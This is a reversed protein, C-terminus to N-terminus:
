GNNLGCYDIHIGDVIAAGSGLFYVGAPGVITSSTGQYPMQSCSIVASKPGGPSVIGSFYTSYIVIIAWNTLAISTTNQGPFPNGMIKVGFSTYTNVNTPFGVVADLRANVMVLIFQHPLVLPITASYNGTLTLYSLEKSANLWVLYKTNLTM